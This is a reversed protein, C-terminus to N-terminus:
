RRASSANEKFWNYTTRIGEPLPVSASFGTSKLRDLNYYRVLQGDPKSSDWDVAVGTEEQLVNVIERIAHRYGSGMNVAGTLNQFIKILAESIDSSYTFDRIASGTGWASVSSGHLQAEYFKAILSPIVHGEEVNFSD